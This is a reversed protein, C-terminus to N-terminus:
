SSRLPKAPKSILKRMAEDFSLPHLSVPKGRPKKEEAPDPPRAPKKKKSKEM